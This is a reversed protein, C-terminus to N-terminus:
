SFSYISLMFLNKVFQVCIQCKDCSCSAKSDVIATLIETILPPCPHLPVHAYNM